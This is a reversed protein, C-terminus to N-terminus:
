AQAIAARGGHACSLDVHLRSKCGAGRHSAARWRLVARREGYARGIEIVVTVDASASGVEWKGGSKENEPESRRPVERSLLKSARRGARISPTMMGGPWAGYSDDLRSRCRAVRAIRPDWVDMGTDRHERQIITSPRVVAWQYFLGHIGQRGKRRDVM